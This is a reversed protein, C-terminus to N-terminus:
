PKPPWAYQEIAIQTVPGGGYKGLFLAEAEAFSETTDSVYFEAQGGETRGSLLELADLADVLADATSKGPDILAVDPGMFERIFGELLPYHTCGLILTDIGTDRLETLYDAIVLRTVPNGENIYGNEVLPVFLPCAKAFLQAGPVLEKLLHQYSGSRITAQTGIIGIRGNRTADAARRATAGVVGTFPVPLQSAESPPYTSSVTGCAAVIFKVDKSLLFGIDPRAYQVIIDRGRSGYPVRGTDGFYVIDEGPLVRRLQRVATLGGLGSDFVGIPRNDM